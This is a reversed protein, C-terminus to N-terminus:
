FTWAVTVSNPNAGVTVSASPAHRGLGIDVAILAAGVAAAAGGIIFLLNARGGAANADDLKKATALQTPATKAADRLSNRQMGFYAGGGAAVAGLGAVGIGIYTLVKSRGVAAPPPASSAHEASVAALTLNPESDASPSSPSMATLPIEDNANAAPAAAHKARSPSPPPPVLEAVTAAATAPETPLIAALPIEDSEDSGAAATPALEAAPFIDALRGVIAKKVDGAAAIEFSMKKEIIQSTVGVVLIQVSVGGGQPSVRAYVVQEAKAQKGLKAICKIDVGCKTVAGEPTKGLAKKLKTSTILKLSAISKPSESLENAIADFIKDKPKDKAVLFLAVVHEPALEKKAKKAMARPAAVLLAVSSCLAVM